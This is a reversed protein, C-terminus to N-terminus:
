RESELSIEREEGLRCLSVLSINPCVIVATGGVIM